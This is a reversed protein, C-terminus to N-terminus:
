RKLVRNLGQGLAGSVIGCAAVEFLAQVGVVAVVFALPNSVGLTERMNVVYECNYFLLVLTGMFLITNIAPCSIGAIYYTVPNKLAKRLAKFILGCFLGELARPIICLIAVYIPNVTMFAAMMLSPATLATYFSTLGFALGCVMGGKPGLFMAGVAVPITILTVTLFPTRIYGLPTFAMLLIVAIMMALEVMYRTKSSTNSM